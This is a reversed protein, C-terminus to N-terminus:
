FFKITFVVIYKWTVIGKDRKKERGDGKMVDSSHFRCSERYKINLQINTYKRKHNRLSTRIGLEM